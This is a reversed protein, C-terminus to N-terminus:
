PKPFLVTQAELLLSRVFEDLAPDDASRHPDHTRKRIVYLKFLAPDRAFELRPHESAKWGRGSSWSWLVLSQQSKDGPPTFEASWFAASQPLGPVDIERRVPPGSMENGAGAFCIDPSHAVIPGPQGSVLLISVADGTRRRVYQRTVYADLRALAVQRDDLQQDESEWEGITRPLNGVRAAAQERARSSGWRDTWSGEAVGFAVILPLAFLLPLSNRM